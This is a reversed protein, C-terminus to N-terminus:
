VLEIQEARELAADFRGLGIGIRGLGGGIRCADGQHGVHDTGIGLHTRGIFLPFNGLVGEVQLGLAGGQDLAQAIGATAIFGLDSARLGLEFGQAGVHRAIFGRTLRTQETQRHQQGLRHILQRGARRGAGFQWFDHLQHRHTIAGRQEFTSRVYPM